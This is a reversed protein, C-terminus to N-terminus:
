KKTKRQYVMTGTVALGGLVLMVLMMGGTEYLGTNVNQSGKSGNDKTAGGDEIKKHPVKVEVIMDSQDDPNQRKLVFDMNDAQYYGEPPATERIQLESGESLWWADEILPTEESTWEEVLIYETTGLTEEVASAFPTFRAARAMFLSVPNADQKTTKLYLQTQAGALMRGNDADVASISFQVNEFDKKLRNLVEVTGDEPNHNGNEDDCFSQYTGTVNGDADKLQVQTANVIDPNAENGATWSFFKTIGDTDVDIKFYVPEPLEEIFAPKSAEAFVYTKGVEFPGDTSRVVKSLAVAKNINAGIGTYRILESDATNWSVLPVDTTGNDPDYNFGDADYIGMPAGELVGNIGAQVVPRIVTDNDSKNAYKLFDMDFPEDVMEVMVVNQGKEATLTFPVDAAKLYGAPAADERLVYHGEPLAKQVQTEDTTTWTRVADGVPQNNEDAPYISLTAGSLNSNDYANKKTVSVETWYNTMPDVQQPVNGSAVYGENRVEILRDDAKVYRDDPAEEERLIYMGPELGMLQKPTGDTTWRADEYSQTGPNYVKAIEGAQGDETAKFLALKAGPLEASSDEGTLDVKSIEILTYDDELDIMQEPIADNVWEGSLTFPKDEAKMFGAPAEVERLIYDGPALKIEQHTKGDTVWERVVTEVGDTVQIIQLKAGVIMNETGAEYKNINLKTYDNKLTVDQIDGNEQVEFALDPAQVYGDPAKEERLIYKGPALLRYIKEVENEKSTWRVIPDGIPQGSEDSKYIALDAGGLLDEHGVEYGNADVKHIHIKTYDELVKMDYTYEKTTNDDKDKLFSIIKEYNGYTKPDKVNGNEDIDTILYGDPVSIETLKYEAGDTDLTGMPLNSIELHGNEDTTYLGNAGGWQNPLDSIIDGQHYLIMEDKNDNTIYQYPKYIDKNATLQFVAGGVKLSSDDIDEKDLVIKGKPTENNVNLTFIGVKDVPDYTFSSGGREQIAVNLADTPGLYELYDVPPEVEQIQYHGATLPQPTEFFGTYGDEETQFVDTWQGGIKQTVYENKDTDYIKFKTNKLVVNGYEADKKVIKVRGEFTDDSQIAWQKPADSDEDIVFVYPDMTKLQWQPVVTENLIYTGYPLRPTVAWGKSDTVLTPVDNNDKDKAIPTQAWADAFAQQKAAVDNPDAPAVYYKDFESKLKVEFEANEVLNNTSDDNTNIKIVQFPQSVVRDGSLHGVVEVEDFQGNYILDVPYETPDLNYSDSSKKQDTLNDFSGEQAATEGKPAKTEKIYYSGLFLKDKVQTKGDKDMVFTHVPTGAPILVQGPDWPAKIDERAYLTYEAGEFTADGLNESGTVTDEKSIVCSGLSERNNFTYTFTQTPKTLTFYYREDSHMYGNPAQVEQVYYTNYQFDDGYYYLAESIVKQDRLSILHPIPAEQDKMPGDAYYVAFEAGSVSESANTYGDKPTDSDKKIAEVYGKKRNNTQQFVTLPVSSSTADVTVQKITNDIVWAGPVYTEQIYYTGPVLNEIVQTKGDDLTTYSGIPSSMNANKSVKFIVGKVGTNPDVDDVKQIQLRGSKVNVRINCSLQDKFRFGRMAQANYDPNGKSDVPQYFMSDGIYSGPYKNITINHNGSPVNSAVKITIKNGSKSVTIGNDTTITGVFDNFESGLVGNTDTLTVSKGVEVDVTQGDFSPKTYAKKAANKLTEKIDAVKANDPYGTVNHVYEWVSWQVAATYYQDGGKVYQACYFYFPLDGVNNDVRGTFTHCYSNHYADTCFVRQGNMKYLSRQAVRKGNSFYGNCNFGYKENNTMTYTAARILGLPSLDAEGNEQSEPDQIEPTIQEEEQSQEDGEPIIATDEEQFVDEDPSSLEDSNEIVNQSEPLNPTEEEAFAGPTIMTLLIILIALISFLKKKM